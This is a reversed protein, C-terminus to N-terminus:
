EGNILHELYEKIDTKKWLPSAGIIKRTMFGQKNIIITEPIKFTNFTIESIVKDSDQVIYLNPNDKYEPFRNLFTDIDQRNKDKSIAILVVDGKFFSVLKMMDPFESLCPMCWSAWFNLMVIKGKFDQLTIADNNITKLLLKPAIVQKEINKDKTYTGPTTQMDIFALGLFGLLIIATILLKLRM